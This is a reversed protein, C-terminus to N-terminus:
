STRLGCLPCVFMGDDVPLAKVRLRPPCSAPEYFWTRDLLVARAHDLPEGAHM